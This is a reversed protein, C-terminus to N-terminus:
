EREGESERQSVGGGLGVEVGARCNVIYVLALPPRLTTIRRLSRFDPGMLAFRSPPPSPCEIILRVSRPSPHLSPVAVGFFPHQQSSPSRGHIPYPTHPWHLRYDMCLYEVRAREVDDGKESRDSHSFRPRSITEETSLAAGWTTM